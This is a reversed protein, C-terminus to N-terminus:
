ILHLSIVTPQRKCICKSNSIPLFGNYQCTLSEEENLIYKDDNYTIEISATSSYFDCDALYYSYCRNNKLSISIESNLSYTKSDFTFSHAHKSERITGKPLIKYLRARKPCFSGMIFTDSSAATNTACTKSASSVKSFTTESFCRVSVGHTCDSIIESVKNM